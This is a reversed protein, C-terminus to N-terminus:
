AAKPMIDAATAYDGIAKRVRQPNRQLIALATDVATVVDSFQEFYKNHTADERVVQWLHEIPNFDPSYTPLQYVSLRNHHDEFFAKMVQSTHYKAGDQIIILHQTTQELLRNLFAQYTQSNFRDEIGHVFLHGSLVDVAGFVKYAKRKGSTRVEPQKGQPAWTYSLTGWQPFSAEDVFLLLADKLKAEHLIAPWTQELWQKRAEPDLHDSVFRAKQYSYELNYLLTCLYHRNYLVGFEKLIVQQIILSTWCGTLLGYSLPGADLIEKLRLKQTPTLRPPRGPSFRYSLSEFRNVLFSGLWNYITEESVSLNAAVTTVNQGQGMTLLASTRRVIRLDGYDYSRKWITRLQTMTSSTFRFRAEMLRM